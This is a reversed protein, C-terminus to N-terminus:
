TPPNHLTQLLMDARDSWRNSAAFRVQAANYRVPNVASAKLWQSTREMQHEVRIWEPYLTCEPVPTSLVPRGSALYDMIKTPCSAINFPHSQDYPMCNIGAHWAWDAILAQPVKGVASVNSRSFVEQRKTIWGPKNGPNLSDEESGGVFNFKLEPCVKVVEAV